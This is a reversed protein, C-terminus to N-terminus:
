VHSIFFTARTSLYVENETFTEYVTLKNRGTALLVNRYLLIIEAMRLGWVLAM